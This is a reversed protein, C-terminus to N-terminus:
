IIWAQIVMCSIVSPPGLCSVSISFSLSDFASWPVVAEHKELFVTNCGLHVLFHYRLSLAGLPLRPSIESSGTLSLALPSCSLPPFTILLLFPKHM